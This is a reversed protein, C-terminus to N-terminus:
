RAAPPLSTNSQAERAGFCADTRLTLRRSEMEREGPDHHQAAHTGLCADTRSTLRRSEMEREGTYEDMPSARAPSAVIRAYRQSCRRLARLACRTSLLTM